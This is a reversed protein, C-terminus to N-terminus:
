HSTHLCRIFNHNICCCCPETHLLLRPLARPVVPPVPSRLVRPTLVFRFERHSNWFFFHFKGNRMLYRSKRKHRIAVNCVPGREWHDIPPREERSLMSPPSLAWFHTQLKTNTRKSLDVQTVCTVHGSCLKSTSQTAIAVHTEKLPSLSPPRHGSSHCQGTYLIFLFILWRLRCSSTPAGYCAGRYCCLIL